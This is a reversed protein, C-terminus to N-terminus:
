RREGGRYHTTSRTLRVQEKASGVAGVATGDSASNVYGELASIAVGLSVSNARDSAVEFSVASVPTPLAHTRVHPLARELLQAGLRQAVWGGVIVADPNLMNVLSAVAVGFQHSVVDILEVAEPDGFRLAAAITDITQTQDDGHLLRSEPYMERLTQIIGPAGVYAEVCGRSGCRCARGEAVFTTHGWEGASHTSGRLLAGEIAIGAGVGTGLNLTVFTQNGRDPTTWLEALAVSKLPNDLYLPAEIVEGLMQLLPVDHWDWNHAFVSAGGEPDVQGPVSVGVGLLARDAHRIAEALVAESVYRVLLEPARDHVDIPLETSSIRTLSADFTDVHVYTEALDIGILVGHDGNLVLQATPRGAPARLRRAEVVLGSELLESCITSVTASSLGTAEALERRSAGEQQAYLARIVAFVNTRRIQAATRAM